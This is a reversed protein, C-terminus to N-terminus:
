KEVLAIAYVRNHIVEAWPTYLTTQKRSCCQDDNAQWGHDMEGLNDRKIKSFIIRMAM